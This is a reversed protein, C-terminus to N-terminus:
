KIWYILFRHMGDSDVQSVNGFPHLDSPIFTEVSAEEVLFTLICGVCIAEDCCMNMSYMDPM